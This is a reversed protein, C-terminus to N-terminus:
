SFSKKFNGTKVFSHFLGLSALESCPNLTICKRFYIKSKEFDKVLYYSKGILGYLVSRKSHKSKLSHLIVLANKHRNINQLKLAKEFVEKEKPNM